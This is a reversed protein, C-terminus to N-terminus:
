SLSIQHSKCKDSKSLLGVLAECYSKGHESIAGFETSSKIARQFSDRLKNIKAIEEKDLEPSCTVHKFDLPETDYQQFSFKEISDLM